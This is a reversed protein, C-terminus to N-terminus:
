KNPNKTFRGTTTDRYVTRNGYTEARVNSSSSGGGSSNGSSGGSSSGGSSFSSGGWGGGWGGYSYDNYDNYYSKKKAKEQAEEKELLIAKQYECLELFNAFLMEAEKQWQSLPIESSWPLSQLLYNKYVNNKYQSLLDSKENMFNKLEKSTKFHFIKSELNNFISLLDDKIQKMIQDKKAKEAEREAQEKAFLISRQSNLKKNINEFIERAEKNWQDLKVDVLPVLLSLLSNEQINKTFKDLLNSNDKSFKELDKLLQFHSINDGINFISFFNNKLQNVIDLLDGDNSYLSSVDIHSNKKPTIHKLKKLFVHRDDEDINKHRCMINKSELWKSLLSHEELQDAFHKVLLKNLKKEDWSSDVKTVVLLSNTEDVDFVKKAQEIRMKLGQGRKAWLTNKDEVFIFGVKKANEAINKIFSANLLDYHTGRSDELGPLDYLIYSTGELARYTPLKTISEDGGQIDFQPNKTKLQIGHDSDDSDYVLDLETLYSILSTKGSGTSGILLLVKKNKSFNILNENIKLHDLLLSELSDLTGKKKSTTTKSKKYYFSEDQKPKEKFMSKSEHLTTFFGMMFLLMNQIKM